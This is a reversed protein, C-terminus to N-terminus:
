SLALKKEQVFFLLLLSSIVTLALSLYFPVEIGISDWLLGAIFSAPFACLGIVMQYWGLSSARYESPALEAVFTKQAPELAARHLGYFVFTLVILWYSQLFIFILCVAAWFVYSILLVPKRGIRDALRGFPYSFVAAFVTFILYLVPVFIVEFGFQKASILLFSYSFSGLAFIASLFLFMTFNRNLDKFSFGKFINKTELKRERILLVVLLAGIISPIAAFFFLERYGINLYWFCIICLVIGCVAGLNDMARLLGFHRGRNQDTSADAILADRPAGRMKGARDLIRFPIIHGWVTSFAYGIRSTAGCLYGVWVFVKRRRIKDSVYGTVAQSISVIAEGLGDILGLIAMNAGLVTTLFLPWIPYIIDSGFDNLFSAAAFTRITNKDDKEEM